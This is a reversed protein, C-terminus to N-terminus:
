LVVRRVPVALPGTAFVMGYKVILSLTSLAQAGRKDITFALITACVYMAVVIGCAALFFARVATASLQLAIPYVRAYNSITALWGVTGDHWPFLVPLSYDLAFGILQLFQIVFGLYVFLRHTEAEKSM